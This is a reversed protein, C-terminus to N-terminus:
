RLSSLALVNNSISEERAPTPAIPKALPPSLRSPCESPGVAIPVWSPPPNPAADGAGAAIPRAAVAVLSAAGGAFARVLLPDDNRM